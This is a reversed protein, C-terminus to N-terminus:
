LDHDIERDIRVRWREDVVAEPGTWTRPARSPPTLYVTQAGRRGVAAALPGLDLPERIQEELERHMHELIHGARQAVSRPFLASVEALAEGDLLGVTQMDGLATGVEGLGGALDTREVLDFVTAEPTTVTVEHDGLRKRATPVLGVRGSRVFEVPVRGIWRNRCYSDVAVQLYGFSHHHVGFAAAASRYAVYYRHGLHAMLADMYDAPPNTLLRRWGPAVAGWLGKSISVMSGDHRAAAIAGSVREPPVGLLAAVRETTATREGTALLHDALGRPHVRTPATM